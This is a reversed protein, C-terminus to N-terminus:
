SNQSVICHLYLALICCCYLRFSLFIKRNLLLYVTCFINIKFLQRSSSVKVCPERLNVMLGDSAQTYYDVMESLTSFESKRAIFYRGLDTAKIRYHRVLDGDRISLAYLNQAAGARNDSRRILFSGHSNGPQSLFREAEQRKIDGFFWSHICLHAYYLYSSYFNDESRRTLCSIWSNGLLKRKFVLACYLDLIM